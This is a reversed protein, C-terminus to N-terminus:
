VYQQETLFTDFALYLLDYAEANMAHGSSTTIVLKSNNLKKNLLYAQSLPTLVDYRGSVMITPIDKIIETNELIQNDSLFFNNKEFHLFVKTYQIKSETMDEPDLVSVKQSPSFLNSEWTLFDAAIERQLSLTTEERALIDSLVVAGQAPTTNHKKYFDIKHQWLDPMMQAVGGESHMAWQNDFDRALWVGSILLGKTREPYKQAYLIALTSGWSGGNLYWQDIGADVRIAEMDEIAHQTTNERLSDQYESKGCGRQDFIIVRYKETDFRNPYYSKSYAGPGGHIVLVAPGLANGYEAYYISHGDGVPLLKERICKM